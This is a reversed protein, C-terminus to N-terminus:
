SNQLFSSCGPNTLSMQEEAQMNIWGVFQISKKRITKCKIGCFTNGTNQESSIFFM